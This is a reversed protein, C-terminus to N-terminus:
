VDGGLATTEGRGNKSPRRVLLEQCVWLTHQGDGRKGKRGRPRIKRYEAMERSQVVRKVLEWM